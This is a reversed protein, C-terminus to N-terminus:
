GRGSARGRIFNVVFIIAAIVLLIHIIGGAVKFILGLIWLVLLIGAITWLM